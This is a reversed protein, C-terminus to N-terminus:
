IPITIIIFEFIAWVKLDYIYEALSNLVRTTKLFFNEPNKLINESYGTELNVKITLMNFDVVKFLFALDKILFVLNDWIPALALLFFERIYVM